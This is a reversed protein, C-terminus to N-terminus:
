GEKNKGVHESKRPRPTDKTCKAERETAMQASGGSSAVIAESKRAVGKESGLQSKLWSEQARLVDYFTATRETKGEALMRLIVYYWGQKKWNEALEKKGAQKGAAFALAALEREFEGVIHNRDWKRLVKQIEASDTMEKGGPKQLVTQM